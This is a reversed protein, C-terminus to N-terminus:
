EEDSTDATGGIRAKLTSSNKFGINKSPAIELDEGTQPNRGMRGERERVKFTGFKAVKVQGATELGQAIAELIADGIQGVLKKTVKVSDEGTTLIQHALSFVSDKNFVEQVQAKTAKTAKTSKTSTTGKVM